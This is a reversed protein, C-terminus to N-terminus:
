TAFGRPKENLNAAIDILCASYIPDQVTFRVPRKLGSVRLTVERGDADVEVDDIKTLVVDQAKKAALVARKNTSFLEFPEGAVREKGKEVVLNGTTHHVCYEHFGLAIRCEARPLTRTNIGRLRTFEEMVETEVALDDDYIRLGAKIENLESMQVEGLRDDALLHWVLVRYLDTRTAVDDDVTLGAAEAASSMLSAVKGSGEPGVRHLAEFGIQLVTLKAAASWIRYSLGLSQRERAVAEFSDEDPMARMRELAALYSALIQRERNEREEREAREREEQERIARRRQATLVFPIALLIIGLLVEVWGVKTGNLVVALGLLILIGGIIMMALFGWGRPTGDPRLSDWFPTSAITQSQPMNPINGGRADAFFFAGRRRRVFEGAAGTSLAADNDITDLTRRPTVGFRIPGTALSKTVFFTM